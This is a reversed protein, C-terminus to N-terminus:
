WFKTNNRHEMVTETERQVWGARLWKLLIQSIVYVFHKSSFYRHMLPGTKLQWKGCGKIVPLPLVLFCSVADGQMEYKSISLLFFWKIYQGKIELDTASHCINYASHIYLIDSYLVYKMFSGVFKM